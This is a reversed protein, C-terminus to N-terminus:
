AGVGLPGDDRVLDNAPEDPDVRGSVRDYVRQLEDLEPGPHIACSLSGTPDSLADLADLLAINEGEVTALRAALLDYDPALVVPAVAVSGDASARIL